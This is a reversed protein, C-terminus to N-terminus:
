RADALLATASEDPELDMATRLARRARNLRSMVTGLPLAHEAALAQYSLGGLAHDSILIAQAHPLRAIAKLVEATALRAPAEPPICPSLAETLEEPAQAPRRAGNRAATMLYPRLAEIEAGAALQAWVRLAAEQALDEAADRSPALIRCLRNLDPLLRAFTEADPAGSKAISQDARTIHPRAPTPADSHM